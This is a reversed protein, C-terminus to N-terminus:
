SRSWGNTMSRVPWDQFSVTAIEIDLYDMVSDVLNDSAMIHPVIDPNIDTRYM